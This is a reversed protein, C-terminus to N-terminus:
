YSVNAGPQETHAGQKTLTDAQESGPVDWQLAVRCNNSLLQLAKALHPLKNKTLAQLVSLADNLFVAM